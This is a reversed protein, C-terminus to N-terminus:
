ASGSREHEPAAKPPNPWTACVGLASRIADSMVAQMLTMFAKKRAPNDVIVRMLISGVWIANDMTDHQAVYANWRNGEVRFALRLDTM